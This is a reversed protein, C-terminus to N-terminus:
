RVHRMRGLGRQRTATCSPNDWQQPHRFDGQLPLCVFSFVIDAEPCLGTDFCFKRLATSNLEAQEDSYHFGAFGLRCNM